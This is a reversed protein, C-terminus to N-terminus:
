NTQKKNGTQTFSSDLCKRTKPKNSSLVVNKTNKFIYICIYEKFDVVISQLSQSRIFFVEARTGSLLTRRWPGQGTIDVQMREM